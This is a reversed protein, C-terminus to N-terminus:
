ASRRPRDDLRAVVAHSAPHGGRVTATARVRLREDRSRELLRLGADTLELTVPRTRGSALTYDARALVITRHIVSRRGHAHRVVRKRFTLSLRGRCAAGVRGGSCVLTATARRQVFPVRRSRISVKLPASRPSPRPCGQYVIPQVSIVSAGGNQPTFTAVLDGPKCTTSLAKAGAPGTIDVTLASLPIDPLSPFTVTGTVVDVTGIVSLPLPAPFAVTLTPASPTGGLTVTGSSLYSPPALPSTGTATGITCPTGTLCPGVPGAIPTLSSPWDLKLAKTASETAANLQSLSAILEAGSDGPDKIVQVSSLAPAYSLLSCGTPDFSDAGAGTSAEETIVSVSSGAAACSSPLRTFPRGDATTAQMTAHLQNVQQGSVVPVGLKVEGIPQGGAGSVVDLTGTSTYVSSGVLVVTGFGAADGPSPPPMLYLTAARPTVNTTVTGTGIQSGAPCANLSLQDPSCTAPVNAISALLGPPLDITVSRVTDTGNSYSFALDATVLPNGGAQTSGVTLTFDSLVGSASASAAGLGLLGCALVAVAAPSCRRLV